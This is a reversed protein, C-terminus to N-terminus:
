CFFACACNEFIIIFGFFTNSFCIHQYKRNVNMPEHKSMNNSLILIYRLCMVKMLQIRRARVFLGSMFVILQTTLFCLITVGDAESGDPM